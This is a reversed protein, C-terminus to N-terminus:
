ILGLSAGEQPAPVNLSSAIGRYGPVGCPLWQLPPEPERRGGVRRTTKFAALSCAFCTFIYMKALEDKSTTKSFFPGGVASTVSSESHFCIIDPVEVWIQLTKNRGRQVSIYPGNRLFKLICVTSVNRNLTIYVFSQHNSAILVSGSLHVFAYNSSSACRPGRRSVTPMEEPKASGTAGCTHCLRQRAVTVNVTKGFFAEEYTLEM